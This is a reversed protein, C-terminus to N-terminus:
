VRGSRVQTRGNKAAWVSQSSDDYHRRYTQGDTQRHRLANHRKPDAYLTLLQVM